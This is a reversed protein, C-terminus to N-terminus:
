DNIMGVRKLVDGLESLIMATAGWIHFGNAEYYPATISHEDRSFTKIKRNEKSFLKNLNIKIISQVEKPEPTFVPDDELLGIFPQIIFNSVPIYLKTLSGLIKIKDRSVGIEEHTERLATVELSLDSQEYKGGPLSIQGSHAGPYINREILVTSYSILDPILLFLVASKVAKDSNETFGNGSFRVSPAMKLQSTLGPLNEKLTNSIKRQLEINM